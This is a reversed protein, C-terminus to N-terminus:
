IKISLNSNRKNSDGIFKLLEVYLRHTPLGMVNFYSGEIKEIAVHGIWEQIGYGGAKDFPKYNSIYYDLEDDKLKKFYVETEASFSHRYDLSRLTVGTIVKHVDDSLLKLMERAIDSNSPKELIHNNHIVVTDATIIITNRRLNDTNFAAAKIESLYQAVKEVPYHSPYKEDVPKVEVRFSIGLEELLVKRRPSSSALIIDYKALKEQLM